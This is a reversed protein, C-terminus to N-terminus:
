NRRIGSVDEAEIAHRMHIYRSPDRKFENRTETNLFLYLRRDFFAGYQVSGQKARDSKWLEVPDCGLMRPVYQGPSQKFQQREDESALYYVVGQHTVAFDRRGRVWQRKAAIAVPSYGELGVFVARDATPRASPVTSDTSSEAQQGTLRPSGAPGTTVSSVAADPKLAALALARTKQLSDRHQQRAQALMQFYGTKSHKGSAHHLIRGGPAVIIDSPYGTVRFAKVLWQHQDGDLKVGVFQEGLVERMAATGLFEREMQRCPRCWSTHFHVLLPLGLRRSEQRAKGYDEMWNRPATFKGSSGTALLTQEQSRAQQVVCAALALTLTVTRIRQRLM